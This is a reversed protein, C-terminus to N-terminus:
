VTYLGYTPSGREAKYLIFAALSGIEVRRLSKRLVGGIDETWEREHGPRSALIHVDDTTIDKEFYM